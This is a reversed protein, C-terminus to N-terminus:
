DIHVDACATSYAAVGADDVFTWVIGWSTDHLGFDAVQQPTIEVRGVANGAADTNLTVGNPFPMAYSGGCSGAYFQLVVAFSTDPAAGNLQYRELAFVTPGSVHINVVQGARLSPYGASVGDATVWVPLRDTHYGQDAAVPVASVAALALAAVVVVIARRLSLPHHHM